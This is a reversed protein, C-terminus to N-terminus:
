SAFNHAFQPLMKLAARPRDSVDVPATHERNAAALEGAAIPWFRDILSGAGIAHLEILLDAVQSTLQIAHTNQSSGKM